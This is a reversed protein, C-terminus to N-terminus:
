RELIQFHNIELLSYFQPGHSFFLSLGLFRFMFRFMFVAVSVTMSLRFFMLVVVFSALHVLVTARDGVQSFEPGFWLPCM